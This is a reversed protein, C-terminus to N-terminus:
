QDQAEPESTQTEETAEETEVPKEPKPRKYEGGQVEVIRKIMDHISRAQIGLPTAIDRLGALGREDAIKELDDRSYLEAAQRVEGNVSVSKGVAQVSPDDSPTNRMRSLQEAPSVRYGPEDADEVQMASGIRNAEHWGIPYESVGNVFTHAGIPGTYDALGKEIIRLRRPKMDEM